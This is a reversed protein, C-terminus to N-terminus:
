PLTLEICNSTKMKKEKVIDKFYKKIKYKLDFRYVKVQLNGFFEILHTNKYVLMYKLLYPGSKYAYFIRFQLISFIHM